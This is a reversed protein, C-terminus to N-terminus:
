EGRAEYSNTYSSNVKRWAKKKTADLGEDGGDEPQRCPAVSISRLTPNSCDAAAAALLVISSCCDCCSADCRHDIINVHTQLGKVLERGATSEHDM